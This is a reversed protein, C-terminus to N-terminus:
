TSGGINEYMRNEEKKPVDVREFLSIPIEVLWQPDDMTRANKGAWTNKLRKVHHPRFVWKYLGGDAPKVFFAFSQDQRFLQTAHSLKAASLFVTDYDGWKMGPRCRIEVNSIRGDPWEAVFDIHNLQENRYMRCNYLSGIERAVALENDRDADTEYVTRM